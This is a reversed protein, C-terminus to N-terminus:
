RPSATTTRQCTQDCWGVVVVVQPHPSVDRKVQNMAQGAWAREWADFGRYEVAM